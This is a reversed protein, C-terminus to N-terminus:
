FEGDTSMRASTPTSSLSQWKSYDSVRREFFNTKREVSMLEMWDFPNEANYRKPAGLDVLLRDAVCEVYRCMLHANIGILDVRLSDCVFAKEVRVADDVIATIREVSPRNADCLRTLLLCAFRQHTAEDRSIWENSLTVGPMLGRKKLWFLACFSSSFFIGEVCAFAVLREGFSSGGSCESHTAEIWRMAWDAKSAISPVCLVADQLERRKDPDDVLTVIMLAYMEAHVMENAIQAAYFARAEPLQVDNMFRVALNEGVIGDAAAFFALIRGIFAREDDNLRERWDRRDDDLPVEDVTWSTAVLAKYANWVQVDRIPFLLFRRPNPTLLLDGGGGGADENNTAM